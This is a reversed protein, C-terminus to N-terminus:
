SDRRTLDHQLERLQSCDPFIALGCRVVAAAAQPKDARVLSRSWAVFVTRRGTDFLPVDPRRAHAEALVAAARAFEGRECLQVIWQRHVYVDNAALPGFRPDVRRADGLLEAAHEFGGADCEALAWNNFAALLNERAPSQHEDLRLSAQLATVAPAFKRQELLAVGRNYYVRALLQVRSIERSIEPSYQTDAAVSRATIAGRRAADDADFWNACTPEVDVPPEGAIRCFVHRPTAMIQVSCDCRECMAAFLLTATVCNFDGSALSDRLSNCSVRYAGTWVERHLFRHVVAVRQEDTAATADSEVRSRLSVALRDLRERLAAVEGADHVGGAIVAADLWANENLAGDAADALMKEELVGLLADEFREGAVAACPRAAIMAVVLLVTVTATRMGIGGSSVFPGQAINDGRWM